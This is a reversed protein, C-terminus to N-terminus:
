KGNKELDKKYKKIELWIGFITIIFSLGLIVFLKEGNLAYKHLVVALIVPILIWGTTKVYFYLVQKKWHNKM